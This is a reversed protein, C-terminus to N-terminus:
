RAEEADAELLIEEVDFTGTETAQAIHTLDVQLSQGTRDLSLREVFVGPTNRQDIQRLPLAAGDVLVSVDLPTEHAGGGRQRVRVHLRRPTLPRESGAMWAPATKAQYTESLNDDRGRAPSPHQRFIVLSNQTAAKPGAILAENRSFLIGPGESATGAVETSWARAEHDWVFVKGSGHDCIYCFGDVYAGSMFNGTMAYASGLPRSIPRPDGGSYLWVTKRGICVVGYPTPVLTRGPACGAPGLPHLAFNSPGAGSLYHLSNEKGILLGNDYVALDEIPEGDDKAVDIFNEGVLWVAPDGPESYHLRTANATPGGSFFRNKHYVLTRGAVADAAADSAAAGDWKRIRSSPFEPNSYCIVGAGAAFAVPLNRTAAALTEISTWTGAALSGFPIRRIVFSAIADDEASLLQSGGSPVWYGFGRSRRTVPAGTTSANVWKPRVRLGGAEPFWNQLVVAAGDGVMTEELYAQIGADFHLPILQPRSM